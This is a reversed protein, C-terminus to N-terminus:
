PTLRALFLGQHEATHVMGGFDLAIGNPRYNGFQGSFVVDGSPGLLSSLLWGGGGYQGVTRSWLHDGCADLKGVVLYGPGLQLGPTVPGGGFDIQGHVLAIFSLHGAPDVALHALGVNPFDSSDPFLRGWSIQGDPELTALFTSAQQPAVAPQAFDVTGFARGAVAVRGDPGVALTTPGLSQDGVLARQWVLSGDRDLQVVFGDAGGQPVLLDGGLDLPQRFSGALMVTADPASGLHLGPSGLGSRTWLVTGDPDFAAVFNNDHTGLPDTGLDLSASSIGSVILTGDSLARARWSSTVWADATVDISKVWLANGLPDLKTIFAGPVDLTSVSSTFTARPM